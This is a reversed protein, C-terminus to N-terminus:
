EKVHTPVASWDNLGLESVTPSLRLLEMAEGVIYLSGALTLFPEDKAAQLAQALTECVQIPAQPNAARCTSELFHPNATREHSGTPCLYIKTALPALTKCMAPWDKDRMAGLIMAPKTPFLTQLAAALTQAGAPNHAGDLLVTQNGVKALQLRGAWQVTKLGTAIAAPTVPVCKQLVRVTELAVAANIHQHDGLLGIEYRPLEALTLPTIVTV